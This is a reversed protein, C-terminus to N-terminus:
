LVTAAPGGDTVGTVMAGQALELANAQALAPTVDTLQVGMHAYAFEGGSRLAPLVRRCVAASVAFALNEGGGASVVGVVRGDMDLLPGGSNGPTVAADTQVPAPVRFGSEAPLSRNRASIIGATASETLGFPARPALVPAGTPPGEEVFELPTAYGPRDLLELVALDSFADSGVLRARSWEGERFQVQFKEGGDVVHQNTVLHDGAYVFGSGQSQTGATYVRILGVSGIAERYVDECDTQFSGSETTATDPPTQTSETEVPPEPTPANQPPTAACGAIAATLVGATSLFARRTREPANDLSRFSRHFARPERPFASGDAVSRKSGADDYSIHTEGHLDGLRRFQVLDIGALVLVGLDGAVVVPAFVDFRKQLVPGPLFGELHPCLVGGDALRLPLDDQVDSQQPLKIEEPVVKGVAHPIVRRADGFVPLDPLDMGIDLAPAFHGRDVGTQGFEALQDTLHEFLLVDVPLGLVFGWLIQRVELLM